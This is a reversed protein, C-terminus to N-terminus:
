KKLVKIARGDSLKKIVIGHYGASVPQGTITYTAIVKVANGKLTEVSAPDKNVYQVLIVQSLENNVYVSFEVEAQSPDYDNLNSNWASWEIEVPLTAGAAIQKTSTTFTEDLTTVPRCAGSFCDSISTGDPLATIVYKMYIDVAASGNNKLVPSKFIVDGYPYFEAEPYICLPEEENGVRGDPSMFVVQAQAAIALAATAFFTFFKKM